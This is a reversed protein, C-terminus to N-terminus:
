QKRNIIQECKETAKTIHDSTVTFHACNYKSRRSEMSMEIYALLDKDSLRAILPRTKKQHVLRKYLETAEMELYITLGLANMLAMNEKECPTGGGTAIIVNDKKSIKKLYHQELKRFHKEGDEAFIKAINKGCIQEIYNDLDIFELNLSKSLKKGISTKGCGMYGILFVRM